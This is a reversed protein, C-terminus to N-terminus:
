QHQVIIEHDKMSLLSASDVFIATVVNLVGLFTFFVFVYFSAEFLWHCEYLQDALEAWPQGGTIAMFLTAMARPVSGYHLVLKVFTEDEKDKTMRLYEAVGFLFFVAFSYLVFGLLLMVWAISPLAHFVSLIMVRFSHFTQLVRVTRLLRAFRIIRLFRVLSFNRTWSRGGM